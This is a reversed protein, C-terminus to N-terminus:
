KTIRVRLGHWWLPNQLRRPSSWSASSCEFTESVLQEQRKLGSDDQHQVAQEGLQLDPAWVGPDQLHGLHRLLLPPLDRHLRHHLHPALVALADGHQEGTSPGAPVGPTPPGRTRRGDIIKDINCCCVLEGWGGLYFLAIWGGFISSLRNKSSSHM